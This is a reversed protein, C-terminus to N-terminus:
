VVPNTYNSKLMQYASMADLEGETVTVYRASGANWLNMGFLEDSRLGEASFAKPYYRIKKGGSPYVYEQKGPGDADSYTKVGYFEMTDRTIGRSAVFGGNGVQMSTAPRINKPVYNMDRDLPKLPYKQKIEETYVVGKAPYPRDCSHCKGVMKVTNYCFADSSSCEPHPCPQHGVETM